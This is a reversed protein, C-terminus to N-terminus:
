LSVKIHFHDELAIRAAHYGCMGHVGGGPPTASSSLYISRNSTRYPTLSFSPRTYLQALDMIGGNIDGGVYNPNYAELEHTNFRHRALICDRFGPAFREIQAEIAATCDLTSGLPVHCYAWATHQGKPARSPDFQSQQSLLVFPQEAHKGQSVLAEARAIEAMEGGIHLTAAQQAYSNQFPIPASLAWDLKFIGVGQRYAELQRRYGPRLDLGDIALVQKPTMNLMLVQHDPLQKLDTFPTNLLIEGGLSQYYAALANAVSQSGGQALPWGFRHGVSGLVLGIAATTLSSLPLMGHGCLGAWLAKAERTQFRSAIQTASQLGKSGFQAMLLPHRPMRLPGLIDHALKPWQQVFPAFLDTYAQSDKGLAAATSEMSRDLFAAEKVSLPHALEYPGYIFSLGYDQLPLRSFFPSALAMPHIAACVDHTFGPLTLSKSRMGGGVSDAAELLLTKLGQSQMLIAAAFGNPGSGVIIADYRDM